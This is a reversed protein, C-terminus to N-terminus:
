HGHDDPVHEDDIAANGVGLDVELEAQAIWTALRVAAADGAADGAGFDVGDFLTADLHMDVHPSIREPVDRDIRAALATAVTEALEVEAAIEVPEGREGDTAVASVAVRTVRLEARALTGLGLVGTPEFRELVVREDKLLDLEEDVHVHVVEAVGAGQLELLAFEDVHVSLERLQVRYGRDSLVAGDGLDRADGPVFAARLEGAELTAFGEGAEIACGELSSLLLLWPLSGGARAM